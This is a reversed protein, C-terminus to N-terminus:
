HDENHEGFVTRVMPITLKSFDVGLESMDRTLYGKFLEQFSDSSELLYDWGGQGGNIIFTFKNEYTVNESALICSSINRNRIHVLNEYTAKTGYGYYAIHQSLMVELSYESNLALIRNNKFDEIFADVESSPLSPNDLILKAARVKKNTEQINGDFPKVTDRWIKVLNEVPLAPNSYATLRVEENIDQSLLVASESNLKPHKAIYSRVLDSKDLALMNVEAAGLRSSYAAQARDSRESSRALQMLGDEPMSM